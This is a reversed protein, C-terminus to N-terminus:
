IKEQYMEILFELANIEIENLNLKDLYVKIENEQLEYKSLLDSYLIKIRKNREMLIKIVKLSEIYKKKLNIYVNKNSKLNNISKFNNINKSLNEKKNIILKINKIM